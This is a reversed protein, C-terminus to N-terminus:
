SYSHKEGGLSIWYDMSEMLRRDGFLNIDYVRLYLEWWYFKVIVNQGYDVDVLAGGRACIDAGRELLALVVERDSQKAAMTLPSDGVAEQVNVTPNPRLLISIIASQRKLIIIDGMRVSHLASKGKDNCFDINAGAEILAEITHLTGTKVAMMLPTLRDFRINKSIPKQPNTLQDLQFGYDRLLNITLALTEKLRQRLGKFFM